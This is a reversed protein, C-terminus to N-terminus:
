PTKSYLTTEIKLTWLEPLEFPISKISRFKSANLEESVDVM